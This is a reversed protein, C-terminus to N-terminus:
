YEVGEDALRRVMAAREQLTNSYMYGVTATFTLMVAFALTLIVSVSQLFRAQDEPELGDVDLPRMGPVQSLSLENCLTTDWEDYPVDPPKRADMLFDMADRAVRRNRVSQQRLAQALKLTEQHRIVRGSADFDLTATGPMASVPLRLVGTTAATYFLRAVAAWSFRSRQDIRDLLDFWKIRVGPWARGLSVLPQIQPPIWYATWQVVVRSPGLVQVRQLDFQLEPLEQLAQARWLTAAKAYAEALRITAVDCTTLVIDDALLEPDMIMGLGDRMADAVRAAQEGEFVPLSRFDRAFPHPPPPAAATPDTPPLAHLRRLSGRPTPARPATPAAVRLPTGWLHGVGSHSLGFLAVLGFAAIRRWAM